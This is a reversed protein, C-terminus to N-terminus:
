AEEVLLNTCFIITQGTRSCVIVQEDELGIDLEEGRLEQWATLYGMAGTKKRKHKKEVRDKSAPAVFGGNDARAALEPEELRKEPSREWCGILGRDLGLWLQDWSSGERILDDNCGRM